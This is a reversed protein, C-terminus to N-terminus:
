RGQRRGRPETLDKEMLFANGGDAYYRALTRVIRFGLREYIDIADANMTRVQLACRRLGIQQFRDLLHRTLMSGIGRGRSGRDVAVSEIEGCDGAVSGAIYGKIDGSVEAVLFEHPYAAHLRRFKSDFFADVPFSAEEIRTVAELDSPTFVRVVACGQVRPSETSEEQAPAQEEQGLM